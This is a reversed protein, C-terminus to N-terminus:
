TPLRCSTPFTTRVRLPPARHSGSDPLPEAVRHLDDLNTVELMRSRGLVLHEHADAARREVDRVPVSDDAPRMDSADRHPQRPWLLAADADVVRPDHLRDYLVHRLRPGTVLHEAAPGSRAGLVDDGLCVARDGVLRRVHGELRSGGGGDRRDRRELGKAVVSPELAPLAHQDM